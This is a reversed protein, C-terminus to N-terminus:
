PPQMRDDELNLDPDRGRGDQRFDEPKTRREFYDRPLHRDRKAALHEFRRGVTTQFSLIAVRGAVGTTLGPGGMRMRM